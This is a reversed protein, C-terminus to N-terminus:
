QIGQPGQQVCDKGENWKNVCLPRKIVTGGKGLVLGAVLGTVMLLMGHLSPLTTLPQCM